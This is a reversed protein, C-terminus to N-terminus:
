ILFPPILSYRIHLGTKNPRMCIRLDTYIAHFCHQSSKSDSPQLNSDQQTCWIDLLTTLARM